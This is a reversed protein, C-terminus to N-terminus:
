SIFASLLAGAVPVLTNGLMGAKGSSTNEPTAKPKETYGENFVIELPINDLGLRQNKGECEVELEVSLEYGQCIHYTSFAPVLNVDFHINSTSGGDIIGAEIYENNTLNTLEFELYREFVNNLGGKEAEPALFSRAVLNVSRWITYKLRLLRVNPISPMTSQENDFVLKLWLPVDTGATLTTARQMWVRFVACAANKNGFWGKGFRKKPTQSAPLSSSVHTVSATKWESIANPSAGILRAEPPQMVIIRASFQRDIRKGHIRAHLQYIVQAAWQRRADWENLVDDRSFTSTSPPALGESITTEEFIQDQQLKRLVRNRHAPRFHFEM